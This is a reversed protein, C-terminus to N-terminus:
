LNGTTFYSMAQNPQLEVTFNALVQPLLNQLSSQHQQRMLRNAQFVLDRQLPTRPTPGEPPFIGSRMQNVTGLLTAHPERQLPLLTQKLHDLAQMVILDVMECPWGAHLNPIPLNRSVDQYIRLLRVLSVVDDSFKTAKANYLQMNLFQYQVEARVPFISFVNDMMSVAMQLVATVVDGYGKRCAVGTAKTYLMDGLMTRAYRILMNYRNAMFDAHWIQDLNESGLEERIWDVLISLFRSDVGENQALNRFAFSAIRFLAAYCVPQTHQTRRLANFFYNITDRMCRETAYENVIGFAPMLMYHHFMVDRMSCLLTTPHELDIDDSRRTLTDNDADMNVYWDLIQGLYPVPNRACVACEAKVQGNCGCGNLYVIRRIAENDRNRRNLLIPVPHASWQKHLNWPNLCIQYSQQLHPQINQQVAPMNASLRPQPQDQAM